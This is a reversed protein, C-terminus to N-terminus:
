LSSFGLSYFVFTPFGPDVQVHRVGETVMFWPDPRIRESGSCFRRQDASGGGFRRQTIAATMERWAICFGDSEKIPRADM